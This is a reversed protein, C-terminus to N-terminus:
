RMGGGCLTWWCRWSVLKGDVICWVQVSVVISPMGSELWAVVQGLLWRGLLLVAVLLAVVVASGVKMPGRISKSAISLM